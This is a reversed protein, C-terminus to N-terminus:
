RPRRAVAVAEEKDLRLGAINFSVWKGVAANNIEISASGIVPGWSKELPDFHHLTM